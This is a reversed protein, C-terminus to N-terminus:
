FTHRLVLPAFYQLKQQVAFSSLLLLHHILSDRFLAEGFNVHQQAYMALEAGQRENGPMCMDLRACLAGPAYNLHLEARPSGSM